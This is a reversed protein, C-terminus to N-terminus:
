GYYEELSNLTERHKFFIEIKKNPYIVIKEVLADILEKTLKEISLLELIENIKDKYNKTYDSNRNIKKYERNTKNKQTELKKLEKQYKEYTSKFDGELLDGKSYRKLSETIKNNIMNIENQIDSILKIKNKKIENLGESNNINIKFISNKLAKIENELAIYFSNILLNHSITKNNCNDLKLKKIRCYYFYYYENNARKKYRSFLLKEGCVGCILKGSFCNEISENKKKFFDKYEKKTKDNLSKVYEFTDTDIISKHKGKVVVWDNENLFERKGVINKKTKGQVVNGIYVENNLIFKITEPRWFSKNSNNKKRIGKLDRYICPTMINNDNLCRAINTYSESNKRMNFIKRVIDASDEDIKLTNRNNVDKVYGYPPISGIYEGNKRKINFSANVKNSIDKAYMENFINKVSPMLFDSNHDKKYTDINDTVSIFRVKLFPFISDLYEEVVINNRGFRSLDKVIVTNIKKNKIDNILKKFAPREFNTGTFGNDVYKDIILFDEKEKIYNHLIDLQNEISNKEEYGNNKTSLRAYIGVTFQYKPNKIINKKSKRAM